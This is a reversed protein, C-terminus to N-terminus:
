HIFLDQCSNNIVINVAFNLVIVQADEPIDFVAKEIGKHVYKIQCQHNRTSVPHARLNAIADADSPDHPPPPTTESNDGEKPCLDELQKASWYVKLEEPQYGGKRFRKM